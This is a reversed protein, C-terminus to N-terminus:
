PTPIHPLHATTHKNTNKKKELLLRCVLNERSQLESTHEESRDMIFAGLISMVLALLIRFLSSWPSIKTSLIIIREIQIIVFGMLLGGVIGGWPALHLYRTAFSYGIFFWILVILLMASTYKKVIKS